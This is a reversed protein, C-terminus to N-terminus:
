SDEVGAILDLKSGGAAKEEISLELTLIVELGPIVQVGALEVGIVTAAGEIEEEAVPRGLSTSDVVGGVPAVLLRGETTRQAEVM